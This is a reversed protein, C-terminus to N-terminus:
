PDLLQQLLEYQSLYSYFHYSRAINKSDLEKNKDQLTRSLRSKLVDESKAVMSVLHSM